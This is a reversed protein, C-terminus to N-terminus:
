SPYNQDSKLFEKKQLFRMFFLDNKLKTITRWLKQVFNRLASVLDLTCIKGTCIRLDLNRHQETRNQGRFHVAFNSLPKSYDLITTPELGLRKM